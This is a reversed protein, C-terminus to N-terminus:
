STRAQSLACLAEEYLPDRAFIELQHSLLESPSRLPEEPRGAGLGDLSVAEVEDAPARTLELDRELRRRLWSALLLADALPGRVCLRNAEAVAPWLRAVSRRWPELRAWTIDSVIARALLDALVTAAERPDEWERSDVVLRDSIEVLGDLEAEGARLEGRWRLFVPLDSRVLPLVISGVRGCTQGRLAVAIVETCIQQGAREFSHLSVDGAIGSEAADPEPFLLVLRSPHADEFGRLAAFAAERQEPPIWAVHTMVSTRSALMEEGSVRDRLRNLEARIEAVSTLGGDLM